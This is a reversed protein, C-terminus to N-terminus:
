SVQLINEEALSVLENLGWCAMLAQILKEMNLAQKQCSLFLSVMSQSYTRLSWYRSYSPLDWFSSTFLEGLAQFLIFSDIGNSKPKNIYINKYISRQQEIKICGKFLSTWHCVIWDTSEERGTGGLQLGLAELGILSVHSLDQHQHPPTM